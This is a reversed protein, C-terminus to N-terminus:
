IEYGMNNDSGDKTVVCYESEICDGLLNLEANLSFKYTLNSQGGNIHSFIIRGEYEGQYKMENHPFYIHGTSVYGVKYEESMLLTKPNVYYFNKLKLYSKTGNSYISLPVIMYNHNGPMNDFVGERNTLYLSISDASFNQMANNTKVIQYNDLSINHYYTPTYSENFNKFNYTDTYTSINGADNVIFGTGPSLSYNESNIVSNKGSEFVANITLVDYSINGEYFLKIQNSTGNHMNDYEFNINSNSALVGEYFKYGNPYYENFISVYFNKQKKLLGKVTVNCKTPKQNISLFNVTFKIGSTTEFTPTDIVITGGGPNFPFIPTIATTILALTRGTKM